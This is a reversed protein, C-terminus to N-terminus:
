RGEVFTELPSRRVGIGRSRTELLTSRPDWFFDFSFFLFSFFIQRSRSLAELTIPGAPPRLVLFKQRTPPNKELLPLAWLTSFLHPGRHLLAAARRPSSAVRAPRKRSGPPPGPSAVRPLGRCRSGGRCGGRTPAALHFGAAHSYLFYQVRKRNRSTSATYPRYRGAVERLEASSGGTLGRVRSRPLNKKWCPSRGSLQSFTLLKRLGASAPRRTRVALTSDVQKCAITRDITSNCPVTGIADSARM